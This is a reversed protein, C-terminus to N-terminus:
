TPISQGFPAASQGATARVLFEDPLNRLAGHAAGGIQGTAANIVMFGADPMIQM